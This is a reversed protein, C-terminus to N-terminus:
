KEIVLNANKGVRKTPSWNDRVYHGVKQCNYCKVKSKDFRPKLNGSVTYGTQKMRDVLQSTSAIMVKEELNTEENEKNAKDVDKVGKHIYLVM